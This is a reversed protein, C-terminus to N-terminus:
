NGPQLATLRDLQEEGLVAIALGQSLDIPTPAHAYTAVAEVIPRQGIIASICHAM